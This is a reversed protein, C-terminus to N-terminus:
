AMKAGASGNHGHKEKGGSSTGSLRLAAHLGGRALAGRAPAGGQRAPVARPVLHDGLHPRAVEAHPRPLAALVAQTNCGCVLCPGAMAATEVHASSQSLGRLVVDRRLRAAEKHRWSDHEAAQALPGEHLVRPALDRARRERRHLLQRQGLAVDVARLGGLLCLDPRERRPRQGRCADGPARHGHQPALREGELGLDRGHLPLQAVTSTALEPHGASFRGVYCRKSPIGRPPILLSMSIACWSQTPSVM